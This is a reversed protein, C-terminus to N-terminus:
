QVVPGGAEIASKFVVFDIDKVTDTIDQIEMGFRTLSTLAM